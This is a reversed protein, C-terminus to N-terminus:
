DKFVSYFRRDRQSLDCTSIDCLTVGETCHAHIILPYDVVIGGHSYCRGVKFVVIDGPLPAGVPNAYNEVVNLFREDDRHLAWQRAYNMVVPRNQLLGCKDFVDVLLQACDTKEYPVCAAHHWRAGLWRRAEAIVAARSM